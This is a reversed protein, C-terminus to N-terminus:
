MGLPLLFSNRNFFKLCEVGNLVLLFLAVKFSISYVQWSRKEWEPLGKCIVVASQLGDAALSM